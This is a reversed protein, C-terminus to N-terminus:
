DLVHRHETAVGFQEDKVKFKRSVNRKLCLGM